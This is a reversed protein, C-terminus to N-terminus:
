LVIEVVATYRLESLEGVLPKEEVSVDFEGCSASGVYEDTTVDGYMDRASVVGIYEVVM